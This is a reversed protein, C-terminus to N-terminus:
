RQRYTTQCYKKIKKRAYGTNDCKKQLKPVYYSFLASGM